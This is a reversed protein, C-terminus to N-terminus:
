PCTYGDTGVRGSLEISIAKGAEGTRGDCVHLTDTASSSGDPSFTFTSVGGAATATVTDKLADAVKLTTGAVGLKVAWGNTWGGANAVISVTTGRKIAESRALNADAVFANAATVLRNDLVMTRFSPIALTVLIAALAVTVMLEILTFGSHNKMLRYICLAVTGTLLPGIFRRTKRILPDIPADAIM